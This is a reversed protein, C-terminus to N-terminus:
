WQRYGAGPSTGNGSGEPESYIPANMRLETFANQGSSIKAISHM